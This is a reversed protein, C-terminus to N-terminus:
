SLARRVVAGIIEGFTDREALLPEELYKAQGKLPHRWTLEEHQRVAYDTDYSVSASLGGPDGTARGSRELEGEEHPVLPQSVGLLHEAATLTGEALAARAAEKAQGGRWEVRASQAM